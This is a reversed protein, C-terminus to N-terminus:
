RGAEEELARREAEAQEHVEDLYDVTARAIADQNIVRVGRGIREAYRESAIEAIRESPKQKTTM